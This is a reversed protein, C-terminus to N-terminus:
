SAVQTILLFSWSGFATRNIQLAAFDRDRLYSLTYCNGLAISTKSDSVASTFLKQLLLVAFELSAALQLIHM